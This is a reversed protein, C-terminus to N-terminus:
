LEFREGGLTRSNKQVRNEHRYVAALIWSIAAASGTLTEHPHTHPSQESPKLLKNLSVSESEMTRFHEFGPMVLLYTRVGLTAQFYVRRTYSIALDATCGWTSFAAKDPLSMGLDSVGSGQVGFLM